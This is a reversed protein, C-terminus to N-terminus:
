ERIIRNKMPEILSLFVSDKIIFLYIGYIIISIIPIIVLRILPLMILKKCIVAILLIFICGIMAHFVANTINSYNLYKSKDPMRIFCLIFVFLESLLTTLAAGIQGLWPIFFLNLGFNLFASIITAQLTIKERGLTINMCATLLGGFIAFIIALGLIQLVRTAGSFDAGGIFYMIESSLLILGVGCPILILSIVCWLQTNTKKYQLWNKEGAYMSLRPIAVTYISILLSKIITYVKVASSYIGVSYDGKMWGLMTTDINVYISIAVANSFLIMIPKLHKKFKPHLTLRIHVYRRCYYWNLVCVIANTFVSMLVYLYYDNSDNIFIFLFVLSVIYIILSRITIYLFDEFVNNIWEVGLTQFLITISYLVILASYKDLQPVVTLVIFLLIYSFITSLVNITFVESVFTELKARNNRKKAAERIAYNTIGLMAILSFYSVISSAYNVKGINNVGLVRLAYPYTILPFIISFSQRIINLIANIGMNKEKFKM